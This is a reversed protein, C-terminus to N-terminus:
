YIKRLGALAYSDMPLTRRGLNRLAGMATSAVTGGGGEDGGGMFPTAGALGASAAQTVPAPTEAGATIPFPAGTPGAPATVPEPTAVPAPPPAVPTLPAAPAADENWKYWNGDSSQSAGPTGQPVKSKTRAM